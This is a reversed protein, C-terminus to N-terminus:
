SSHDDGRQVDQIAVWQAKRSSAVQSGVSDDLHTTEYDLWQQVRVHM